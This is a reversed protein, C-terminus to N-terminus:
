GCCLTLRRPRHTMQTLNQLNSRIYNPNEKYATFLSHKAWYPINPNLRYFVHLGARRDLVLGSKKLVALHRSVKSQLKQLAYTLETVCLEGQHTILLVCRLRTDDALCKHFQLLDM